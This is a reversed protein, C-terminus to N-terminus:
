DDGIEGFTSVLIGFDFLTVEQDGDLDANPNWNADGPASGFAAVLRGFDFLTVENDQDIDGNVLTLQVGLLSGVSTDVSVTRRLWHAPKLSLAFMGAPASPLTYSGDVGLWVTRTTSDAGMRVEMEVVPPVPASYDGFTITGNVTTPLFEDAGIDVSVGAIRTEGDVDVGGASSNDGADICPSGPLLHGNRGTLLPDVSINGNTGTPDTIGRYNYATSGYVCNYRLVPSGGSRFIGSTNFAVITNTISPSSGFSYVGGGHNPATNFALTCNTFAPACERYIYTGGGSRQATNSLMLSNVVQASARWECYLGGGYYLATNSSISSNNVVPSAHYAYIGGGSNQARNYSIACRNFVANSNDIAYVGGGNNESANALILCDVLNPSSGTRCFIGAGDRVASNSIVVCRQISPSASDTFVMGGGSGLARNRVITCHSVQQYGGTTMVFMGGGDRWAYNDAITCDFFATQCYYYLAVGAGDVRATNRAIVCDEFYGMPYNDALIAGGYSATNYMFVCRWFGASAFTYHLRVAGGWRSASNRLFNSDSVVLGRGTCMIAGGTAARNGVFHCKIVETDGGAHGLGGGDTGAINDIFSCELLRLNSLMSVVGGGGDYTAVNGEFTCRRMETRGGQFDFGGGTGARNYAIFCDEILTTERWGGGCVGGGGLAENNTITCNRIRSGAGFCIGGGRIQAACDTIMCNEIHLPASVCYVGGGYDAQSGNRITFGDIVVAMTETDLVTIVRDIRGGDLVTENPDPQPRPFPPREDLTNETGVFGGYLKIGGKLILNEQYVGRAVWIEDGAVAAAVGASVTRKAQAWSEGSNADDGDTSVYLTRACIPAHFLLISCLVGFLSVLRAM